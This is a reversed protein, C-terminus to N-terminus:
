PQSIVYYVQTDFVHAVRIGLQYRLAAAADHCAHMVKIISQSELVQKLGQVLINRSAPHVLDFIFCFPAAYVQAPCGFSCNM